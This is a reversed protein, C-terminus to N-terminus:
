ACVCASCSVQCLQLADRQNPMVLRVGVNVGPCGQKEREGFKVRGREM